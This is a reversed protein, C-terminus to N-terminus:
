NKNLLSIIPEYGGDIPLVLDFLPKFNEPQHNGFAVAYVSEFDIGTSMKRDDLSDGILLCHRRSPHPAIAGKEILTSGVKNAIHILPQQAAKVVGHRDFDLDNSIISINSTLLQQQKLLYTIADTGIGSASYIILPTRRKALLELFEVAGDRFQVLPSHTIEHIMTLTVKEELLVGISKEWWEQMLQQKKIPDISPDLEIPYYHSFLDQSKEVGQKSLYKESVLLSLLSPMPKGAVVKKTLTGDFDTIVTLNSLDLHPIHTKKM